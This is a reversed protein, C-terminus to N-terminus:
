HADDSGREGVTALLESCGRRDAGRARGLVQFGAGVMRGLDMTQVASVTQWNALDFHRLLGTQGAAVPELSAPDVVLSRTWAPGIKARPRLWGRCRSLLADDYFQSLLETMGYENLVLYGPVHLCRWAAKIVGAPALVGPLGKNGGTDVIRSDPPLRVFREHRKMTAALLSFASTVALILVPRRKRAELWDISAEVDANGAADFATLTDESGFHDACWSFMRGLSSSPHTEASPGLILVDCAGPRDTLVLAEFHRLASRQYTTLESLEHRSRQNSGRTTGSSLFCHPREGELELSGKFADAPLAPIQRWDGVSSPTRGRADCLRRYLRCHQYQFEFADLALQEFPESAGDSEIFSLM